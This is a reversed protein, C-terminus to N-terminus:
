IAAPNYTRKILEVIESKKKRRSAYRLLKDQQITYRSFANEWIHQLELGQYAYFVDADCVLDVLIKELAPTSVGEVNQLPAESVMAKVVVAKNEVSVYREMTELKPKLFVAKNTEQLRHFVTECVDRETELIILSQNSLHQALDNLWGTEWVCVQAYPFQSNIGKYLKSARQSISPVFSKTQGIHFHGRSIRELVGQRILEHIRWNVTTEQVSPEAKRYFIALDHNTLSKQGKFHRKLRDIHLKEAMTFKRYIPM